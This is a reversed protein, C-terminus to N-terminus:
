KIQGGTLFPFYCVNRYTLCLWPRHALNWWERDAKAQDEQNYKCGRYTLTMQETDISVSVIHCYMYIIDNM